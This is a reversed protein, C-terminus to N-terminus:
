KTKERLELAREPYDTIIGDVGLSLMRKIDERENVTWPILAMQLSHISDVFASDKVMGFHPSYIEPLFGLKDFNAEMEGGSVLYSLEVEPYKDNLVKLINVDFSQVNFGGSMQKEQLIDMVLAVFEEPNPQSRGYQNEQSKLEMNYKVPALNESVIFAELTDIVERLLPKYTKMQQQQPFLRNGKSGADFERISDYTMQYLNYSKEDEKTIVDGEPTLVYLSSMFPEHSVVVQKDASIVLDLELVEVGKKLASKFAPLSNEPFNGRDGRHGQVEILVDNNDMQQKEPDTKCAINSLLLGLVLTKYIKM